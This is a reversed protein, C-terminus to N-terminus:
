KRITWPGTENLAGCPQGARLLRARNLMDDVISNLRIAGDKIMGIYGMCEESIVGGCDDRLFDAASKIVQLPNRLDHAVSCSFSEIDMIAAPLPEARRKLADKTGRSQKEIAGSLERNERRLRSVESMLAENERRLRSPESEAGARSGAPQESVLHDEHM